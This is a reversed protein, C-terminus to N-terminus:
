GQQKMLPYAAQCGYLVGRLNVDIIRDWHALTLEEPEGGLSIGANNFIYDLHGHTAHVDHVLDIVAEPDRVDLPADVATGPGEDAFLKANAAAGAEDIDALVVDTGQRVLARGLAAGIGSAGGTVIAIDHM